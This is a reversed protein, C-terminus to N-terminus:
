IIKMVYSKLKSSLVRKVEFDLVDFKEFVDIIEVECLELNCVFFENMSEYCDMEGM